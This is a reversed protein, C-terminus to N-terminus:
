SPDKLETVAIGEVLDWLIIRGDLSSSAVLRPVTIEVLDTIQKTHANFNLVEEIKAGEFLNWKWTRLNFDAGATMWTKYDKLYWIGTQLVDVKFSKIMRNGGNLEFFFFQRDSSICGIM